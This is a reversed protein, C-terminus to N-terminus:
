EMQVPQALEVEEQVQRPTAQQLTEARTAKALLELPELETLDEMEQWVVVLAV